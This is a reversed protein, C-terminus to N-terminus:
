ISELFRKVYTKAQIYKPKNKRLLNCNKFSIELAEDILEPTVVKGKILKEAESLRVPVPAVGGLVMRVDEVKDGDKKYATALSIIAFDISPRTRLKEYHTTYGDMKNIRIEKVIEGSDLMDKTDLESTFLEAASIVKKTTVIEAENMVLVPTIDSANVSYCACNM